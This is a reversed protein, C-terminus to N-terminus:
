FFMLICEEQLFVDKLYEPFSRDLREVPGTQLLKIVCDCVMVLRRLLVAKSLLFRAVILQVAVQVSTSTM